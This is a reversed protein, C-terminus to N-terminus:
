CFSRFVLWLLLHERLWCANLPPSQRSKIRESEMLRYIAEATKHHDGRFECDSEFIAMAGAEIMEPTVEIDKTSSNGAQRDLIIM